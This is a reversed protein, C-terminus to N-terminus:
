TITHEYTTRKDKLDSHDKLRIVAACILLHVLRSCLVQGEGELISSASTTLAATQSYRLAAARPHAPLHFYLGAVNAGRDDDPTDAAVQGEGDAHWLVGQVKWLVIAVQLEAQVSARAALEDFLVHQAAM